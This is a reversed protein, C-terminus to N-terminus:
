AATSAGRRQGEVAERPKQHLMSRRRDPWTATAATKLEARERKTPSGSAKSTASRGGSGVFPAGGTAALCSGERELSTPSTAARPGAGPAGGAAGPPAAPDVVGGEAAGRVCQSGAPVRVDDGGAGGDVAAARAARLVNSGEM